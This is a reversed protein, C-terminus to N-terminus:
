PSEDLLARLAERDELDVRPEGLDGTSWRLPPPEDGRDAGALAGALLESAVTGMSKGERRGLSRLRRLIAPDLDLTTRAM